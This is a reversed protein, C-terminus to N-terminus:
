KVIKINRTLRSTIGYLLQLNKKSDEIRDINVTYSGYMDSMYFISMGEFPDQPYKKTIYKMNEVANDAINKVTKGFDVFEQNNKTAETLNHISKEIITNAINLRTISNLNVKLFGYFYGMGVIMNQTDSAEDFVTLKGIAEVGALMMKMAMDDITIKQKKDFLGM